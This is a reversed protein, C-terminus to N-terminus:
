LLSEILAAADQPRGSKALRERQREAAKRQKSGPTSPTGPRATKTAGKKKAPRLEKRKDTAQDYLMAKRMLVVARHDYIGQMEEATFGLQQGYENLREKEKKAVESDKWEPIAELLRGSEQKVHEVLQQNREQEQQQQIREREQKIADLKERKDRWLEKQRVWENPDQQYLRDWDPEKEGASEVQEQLQGLLTEYQQREARVQELEQSAAKREEALAQTKRTYDQQRQYGSLLESQSVEVEEGDVKVTFRPEETEGEDDEDDESEDEEAEDSEEEDGEAEEAEVSEDEEAELTEADERDVQGEAESEAQNDGEDVALLDAITQTASEAQGSGAVTTQAEPM